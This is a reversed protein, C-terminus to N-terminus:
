SGRRVPFWCKVATLVTNLGAQRLCATVTFYLSANIEGGLLLDVIKGSRAVSLYFKTGKNTGRIVYGNNGEQFLERTQSSWCLEYTRLQADLERMRSNIEQTSPKSM